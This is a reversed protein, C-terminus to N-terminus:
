HVTDSEYCALICLQVEDLQNTQNHPDVIYIGTELEDDEMVTFGDTELLIDTM